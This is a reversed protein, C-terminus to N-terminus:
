ENSYEYNLVLDGQNNRIFITDKANNWVANCQRGSSCWYLSKQADIGCGTYLTVESNSELVFNPFVYPDRSTEDTVRWGTIDYSFGCSNKLTIYEDNLNNCDNGEANAHIYFIGICTDPSAGEWICGQQKQATNEAEELEKEYKTNPSIIFVTALGEEVLKININKNNLFIYRLLRGYQDKTNEDTELRVEKNKILEELRKKAENYCKQGREPTNIGLLRIREGTEIEITDGDIIRIVFAKEAPITESFNNKAIIYGKPGNQGENPTSGKILFGILIGILLMLLFSATLISTQKRFLKKKM